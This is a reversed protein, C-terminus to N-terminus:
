LSASERKQHLKMHGKQIGEDSLARLAALNQALGTAAMIEALQRASPSGLIKLCVRSLPHYRTMGGVVGVSLPMVLHGHLLGDSSNVRWRSLPSYQGSLGAYSHAGAELARTDNGTALAVADIGNMIGKNHTSARFVDSKALLSAREIERIVHEGHAKDKSLALPTVTCRAEVLRGLSLNTLICLGRRASQFYKPVVQTAVDSALTNVVNAGMCDLTDVHLYLIMSGTAPLNKWTIDRLGGGRKNMSSCLAGAEVLLSKKKDQDTLVKKWSRALPLNDGYRLEIQATTISVTSATIFGQRHTPLSPHRTLKAGHSAAAIVSPEETAMPVLANHGNVQLNTALGLPIWFTGMTNETSREALALKEETNPLHSRLIQREEDTLRAWSAVVSERQTLSLRHFSKIRSSKKLLSKQLYQASQADGTASKPKAKSAQDLMGPFASSLGTASGPAPFFPGYLHTNDQPRSTM